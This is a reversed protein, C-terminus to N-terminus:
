KALAGMVTTVINSSFAESLRLFTSPYIGIWVIFLLFPVLTIMERTNLDTLLNM